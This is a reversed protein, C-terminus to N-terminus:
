QIILDLLKHTNIFRQWAEQSLCINWSDKLIFFHVSNESQCYKQYDTEMHVSQIKMSDTSFIGTKKQRICTFFILMTINNIQYGQLDCM